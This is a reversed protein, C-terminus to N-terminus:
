PETDKSEAVQLTHATALPYEWIPAPQSSLIPSTREGVARAVYGPLGDSEDRIVEITYHLRLYDDVTHINM